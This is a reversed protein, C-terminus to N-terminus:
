GSNSVFVFARGANGKPVSGPVIQGTAFLLLRPVIEARAAESILDYQSYSLHQGRLVVIRSSGTAPM